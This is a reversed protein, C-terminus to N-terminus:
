GFGPSPVVMTAATIGSYATNYDTIPNPPVVLMDLLAVGFQSLLTVRALELGRETYCMECDLAFM